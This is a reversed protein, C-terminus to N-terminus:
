RRPANPFLRGTLRPRRRRGTEIPRSAPQVDNVEDAVARHQSAIRAVMEAISGERLERQTM